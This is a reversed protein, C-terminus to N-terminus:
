HSLQRTNEHNEPDGPEPERNCEDYLHDKARLTSLRLVPHSGALCAALKPRHIPIEPGM